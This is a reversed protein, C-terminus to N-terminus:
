NGDLYEKIKIKPDVQKDSKVIKGDVKETGKLGNNSIVIDMAYDIVLDFEYLNHKVALYSDELLDEMSETLEQIWCSLEEWRERSLSFQSPSEVKCSYYKAKTGEYVFVFDCYEAIMHELSEAMYFENAEESLMRLELAPDFSGLLGRDRNWKVVRPKLDSRM